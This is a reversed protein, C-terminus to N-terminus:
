AVSDPGDLGGPTGRHQHPHHRSKSKCHTPRYGTNSHHIARMAAFNDFVQQQRNEVWAAIHTVNGETVAPPQIDRPKAMSAREREARAVEQARKDARRSALVREIDSRVATRIRQDSIGNDYHQRSRQVIESCQSEDLGAVVITTMILGRIDSTEWDSRPPTSPQHSIARWFQTILNM